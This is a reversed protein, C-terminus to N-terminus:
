EKSEAQQDMQIGFEVNALLIEPAKAHEWKDRLLPLLGIAKYCADGVMGGAKGSKPYRQAM